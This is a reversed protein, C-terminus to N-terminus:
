YVGNAKFQFLHVMMSLGMHGYLHPGMYIALWAASYNAGSIATAVQAASCGTSLVDTIKRNVCRPNTQFGAGINVTMNAYPGNVVCNNSGQGDGGFGLTTNFVKAASFKGADKSEDWWRPNM